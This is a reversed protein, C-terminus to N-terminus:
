SPDGPHCLKGHQKMMTAEMQTGEMDHESMRQHAQEAAACQAAQQQPSLRAGSAVSPRPAEGLSCAGVTTIGVIIAAALAFTKAKHM